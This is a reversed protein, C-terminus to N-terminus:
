DHWRGNKFLINMLFFFIRKPLIRLLKLYLSFVLPFHIEFRGKKVGDVIQKAALDSTMILPMSGKNKKTLRTDVFGPCVLSIHINFKKLEIYSSEAFHNMAAKSAGYTTAGPLGIYGGVSSIWIWQPSNRMTCKNEIWYNKLKNFPRITKLFNVIIIEEALEENLDQIHMPAYIAPCWFVMDISLEKAVMTKFFNEVSSDNKIDLPCVISNPFNEKLLEERRASLILTNKSKKLIKALSFGIGSSAGVIWITRGQLEKIVPNLASFIL